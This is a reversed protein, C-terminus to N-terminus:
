ESKESDDKSQSEDKSEGQPKQPASSEEKAKKEAEVNALIQPDLLGMETAEVLNDPNEIFDLLNQPQNQFRARINSPLKLFENKIRTVENLTETFNPNVHTFDGYVPNQNGYPLQGTQTFRKVISTVNTEDKFHQQVKTEKGTNVQVRKRKTM